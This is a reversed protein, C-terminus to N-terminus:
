KIHECQCEVHVESSTLPLAGAEAGHFSGSNYRLLASGVGWRASAPHGQHAGGRDLVADRRLAGLGEGLTGAYLFLARRPLAAARRSKVEVFPMPRPLQLGIGLFVADEM